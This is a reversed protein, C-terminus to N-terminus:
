HAPRGNGPQRGACGCAPTDHDVANIDAGKGLLLTVIEDNGSWAAAHLPTLGREDGANIDAGKDLLMSAAQGYGRVAAIHLPCEGLEDRANVDAGEELLVKIRPIANLKVAESLSLKVPLEAEHLRFKTLEDLKGTEALGTDHQFSKVAEVSKNGWIGDPKGVDYGLEDLKKQAEFVIPDYAAAFQAGLIGSVSIIVLVIEAFGKLKKFNQM